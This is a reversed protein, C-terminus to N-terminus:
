TYLKIYLAHWLTGVIMLLLVAFLYRM